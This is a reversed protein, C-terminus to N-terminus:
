VAFVIRVFLLGSFYEGISHPPPLFVPPPPLFPSPVLACVCGHIRMCLYVFSIWTFHHFHQNYGRTCVCSDPNEKAIALRQFAITCCWPGFIDCLLLPLLLEITRLMAPRYYTAKRDNQLQHQQQRLWAMTTAAAATFRNVFSISHLSYSCWSIFLCSLCWVGYVVAIAIHKYMLACAM